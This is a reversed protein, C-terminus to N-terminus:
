GSRGYKMGGKIWASVIRMIEFGVLVFLLAVTNKLQWLIEILLGKIDQLFNLNTAEFETLGVWNGDEDYGGSVYPPPTPSPTATPRPTPTPMPTNTPAPTPSPTPTETPTVDPTVEPTVDPDPSVEPTIEPSIDPTIEPTVEPAAVTRSYGCTNCDTDSDDDFVHTGYSDMDAPSTIDCLGDSNLCAHWHYDATNSWTDSWEHSHSPQYYGILSDDPTSDIGDAFRVGSYNTYLFDFQSIDYGTGVTDGASQSGSHWSGNYFFTGVYNSSYIYLNSNYTVRVFSFDNDGSFFYFRYDSGLKFVVFYEYESVDYSFSNLCGYYEMVQQYTLTDEAKAVTGMPAVVSFVMVLCLFLVLLKKRM